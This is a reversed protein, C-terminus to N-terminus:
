VAWIAGHPGSRAQRRSRPKRTVVAAPVAKRDLAAALCLSLADIETGLADLSDRRACM